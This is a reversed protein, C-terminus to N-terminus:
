LNHLAEQSLASIGKAELTELAAEYAEIRFVVVANDVNKEVFAYMYEVNIDSTALIELVRHLGGPQDEVKVLGDVPYVGPVGIGEERIGSMVEDHAFTIEDENISAPRLQDERSTGVLVIVPCGIEEPAPWGASGGLGPHPRRAWLPSLSRPGERTGALKTADEQTNEFSGHAVHM